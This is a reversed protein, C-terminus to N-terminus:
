EDPVVELGPDVYVLSRDAIDHLRAAIEAALTDSLMIVRAGEPHDMIAGTPSMRGAGNLTQALERLYELDQDTIVAAM